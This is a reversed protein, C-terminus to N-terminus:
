AVEVVRERWGEPADRGDKRGLRRSRAPSSHFRFAGVTVLSGARRLWFDSVM